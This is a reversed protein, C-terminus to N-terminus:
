SSLSAPELVSTKEGSKRRGARYGYSSYYLIYLYCPLMSILFAAQPSMALTLRGYLQPIVAGGAIGMILLASGIKTFRGLGDIALPFIAPWMVANALGLLAIFSISYYGPTVAALAVFVLGLLASGKLASEQKIFKPITIIGITYGVLMCALTLSTFNKTVDLSFGLSRGYPGIVDGSIVEAGVYVFICFVGLILHPFQLVSTKAARPASDSADEKEMDIEPLPSLWIMMGLGILVVTMIAYPLIVRHALEVLLQERIAPTAASNISAEVSSARALLISSLILPSLAGATKNCIG